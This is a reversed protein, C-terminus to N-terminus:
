GFAWRRLRASVQRRDLRLADRVRRYIQHFARHRRWPAQLANLRPAGTRGASRTPRPLAFSRGDDRYRLRYYPGYTKTGRRRWCPGVSGQQAFLEPRAALLALAPHTQQDVLDQNELKPM